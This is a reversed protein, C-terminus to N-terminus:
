KKNERYEKNQMPPSHNEPSKTNITTAGPDGWDQDSHQLPHPEAIRHSINKKENQQHANEQHQKLYVVVSSSSCIPFKCLTSIRILSIIRKLTTPSAISQLDIIDLCRMHLYFFISSCLLRIQLVPSISKVSIKSWSWGWIGVQFRFEIQFDSQFELQFKYKFKLQM